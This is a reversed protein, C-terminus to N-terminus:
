RASGKEIAHQIHTADRLFSETYAYQGQDFLCSKIQELWRALQAAQEFISPGALDPELEVIVDAISHPLGPKSLGVLAFRIAEADEREAREALSRAAGYVFTVADGARMKKCIWIIPAHWDGAVAEEAQEESEFPGALISKTLGSYTKTRDVGAGDSRTAQAGESVYWKGSEPLLSLFKSTM